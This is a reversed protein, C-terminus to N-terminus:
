VNELADEVESMLLSAKINLARTLAFLAKISPSKLGREVQSVYTRDLHALEALQEQSFNRLLRYKKLVKGFAVPIDNKM